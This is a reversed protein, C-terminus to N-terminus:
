KRYKRAAASFVEYDRKLEANANIIPMQTAVVEDLFRKQEAASLYVNAAGNQEWLKLSKTLDDQGWRAAVADAKRVEEEVITRVDAPLSQMFNRNVIAGVVVAWSPPYFATKAFDYYKFATLITGSVIAGDITGNQLAPVVENLPMPVASVGFKKLPEIQMPTPAVRVKMGRLDALSKVAKRAGMVNPGHVWSTLVQAPKGNMFSAMRKQVEPDTMVQHGHPISDFIGAADFIQYRPDVGVLFGSAIFTAEITGLLVGEVTRPIPGLQSAPYIEVKVRGNSRTEVGKKFANMWEITIDGITPTSLKMTFQAQAQAPAAAIGLALGLVSVSLLMKRLVAGLASALGHLPSQKM